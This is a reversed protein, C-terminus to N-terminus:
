RLFSFWGRKSLAKECRALQSHYRNALDSVRRATTLLWQKRKHTGRRFGGDGEHYALYLNYADRKSVGTVRSTKATYWGVFDTSDAFDSRRASWNGTEHRYVSWTSQLAQSYGYATSPRPGPIFGLFRRRRPRAKAEFRSEQHIIALQVPVPTGWRRESEKAADYWRPKETFIACGDGVDRPPRTSCGASSVLSISVAVVAWWRM